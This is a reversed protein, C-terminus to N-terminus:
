AAIDILKSTVEGPNGTGRASVMELHNM